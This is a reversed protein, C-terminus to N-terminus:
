PYFELVYGRVNCSRIEGLGKLGCDGTSARCLVGEPDCVAIAAGDAGTLLCVREVVTTLVVSLRQDANGIIEKELSADNKRKLETKPM